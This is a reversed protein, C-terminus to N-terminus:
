LGGKCIQLYNHISDGVENNQYYVRGTNFFWALIELRKICPKLVNRNYNIKPVYDLTFVIDSDPNKLETTKQHIFTFLDNGQSVIECQYLYGDFEIFYIFQVDKPRYRTPCHPYIDIAWAGNTIMHLKPNDFAFYFNNAKSMGIFECYEVAVTLRSDGYTYLDITGQKMSDVHKLGMEKFYPCFKNVTNGCMFIKVNERLRIITSITNMFLVFEDQLYLGKAIFEDFLITNVSPFSISKDHEMESLAFVYAFCDNETDYISKGNEDYNCFYFKRAYYYIGTYKGKTLKTIEGNQILNAFMQTARAGTIDQQWRRVIALQSRNKVWQQVGYKLVAYTKGNSREGIILNYVANKSLISSLSYYKIETTRTSM